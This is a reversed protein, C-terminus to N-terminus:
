EGSGINAQFGPDNREGKVEVLCMVPYSNEIM